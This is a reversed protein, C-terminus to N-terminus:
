KLIVKVGKVNQMVEKVYDQITKKTMDGGETVTVEHTEAQKDTWEKITYLAYNNFNSDYYTITPLFEADSVKSKRRSIM